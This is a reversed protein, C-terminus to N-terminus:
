HRQRKTLIELLDERRKLKKNAKKKSISVVRVIHASNEVKALTLM